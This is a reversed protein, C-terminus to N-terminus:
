VIKITINNSITSYLTQNELWVAYFGPYNFKKTNNMSTNFTFSETQNPFLKTITFNAEHNMLTINYLTTNATNKITWNITNNSSNQTINLSAETVNIPVTTTNTQTPETTTNTIAIVLGISAAFILIITLLIGIIQKSM